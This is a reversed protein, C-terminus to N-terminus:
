FLANLLNGACCDRKRFLQYSFDEGAYPFEKGAGTIVTTRGFPQCCRGAIKATNPIPYLMEMKYDTKDMLLQPYYGCLGNDGSAAWILGQRHMKNTFRQVLLTTAQVAGNKAAVFGTLPFMPGQCGACWYLSNLPFGATAAVCDVACAVQGVPNAYLAADPNLIFTTESDAWLPDLETLYGLDFVGKELCDHDLLIELWFMLPNIYWHVQYFAQSPKGDIKASQGHEPANVGFDISVGGLSVFCYPQRVVEVIRAPEWFGVRAGIRAGCLCGPGGGSSGNDEQDMNFLTVSGFTIPFSCSWCIDSIPDPFRGTCSAAFGPGGWVLALALLSTRFIAFTFQGMM